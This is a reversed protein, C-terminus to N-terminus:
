PSLRAALYKLSLPYRHEIDFHTADIRALARRFAEAGLDLFFEDQKGADIYVARLHVLREAHAPVMCVPDWVLWRAWLNINLEGEANLSHLLLAPL